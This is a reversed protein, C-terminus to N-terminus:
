RHPMHEVKQASGSVRERADEWRIAGRPVKRWDVFEKWKPENMDTRDVSHLL